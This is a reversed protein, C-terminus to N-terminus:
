SCRSRSCPTNPFRGRGARDAGARRDDAGILLEQLHQSVRDDAGAPHHPLREAAPYPSVGPVADARDGTRRQGPRRRDVPHRVAGARLRPVATYLGLCVVATWFEAHPLGRKLWDGAAKPLVEPLVFYWLFMQVLLPINRFLEVYGAAFARVARSRVTRAIGLLSGLSFAIVWGALAILVTWMLGSLIWGLYPARSWSRGTGAISCRTFADTRILRM